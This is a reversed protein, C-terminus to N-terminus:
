RSARDLEDIYRRIREEVNETNLNDLEDFSMKSIRDSIYDAKNSYRSRETLLTELKSEDAFGEKEFQKRMKTAEESLKKDYRQNITVLKGEIKSIESKRRDGLKAEEPYKERAKKWREADKDNSKDLKKAIRKSGTAAYTGALSSSRASSPQWPSSAWKKDRRVGWKMGLVGYHYLENNYYEM